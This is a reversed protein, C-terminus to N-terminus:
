ACRLEVVKGEELRTAGVTASVYVQTANSLDPRTNIEVNLDGWVGLHMGSRAWAPLRRVGTSQDRLVLETHIFNFGMFGTIQGNVLPRDTNYDFSIAQTEALLDDHDQATIALFLPDTDINVHKEMLMRKAARLKAVTLGEGGDAVVQEPPFDTRQDGDGGTAATGFFASLIERDVARGIAVSGNIAYASTVDTLTRLRDQEQILDAWEWDKPHVWRARHPTEIIPTASHRATKRRAEVPGLQDVAKGAKGIYGDEMVAPRLKAEQQLLLAVNGKYQQVFAESIQDSM